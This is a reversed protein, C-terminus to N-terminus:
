AMDEIANLEKGIENTMAKLIFLNQFVDQYSDSNVIGDFCFPDIIELPCIACRVNARPEGQRLALM